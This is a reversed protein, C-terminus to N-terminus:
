YMEPGSPGSRMSGMEGVQLGPSEGGDRERRVMKRLSGMIPLM